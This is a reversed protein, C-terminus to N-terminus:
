CMNRRTSSKGARGWVYIKERYDADARDVDDKGISLVSRHEFYHACCNESRRMRLIFAHPAFQSQLQIGAEKIIRLFKALGRTFTRCGM